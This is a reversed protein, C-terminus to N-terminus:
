LWLIELPEKQPLPDGRGRLKTVGMGGGITISQNYPYIYIAFVPFKVSQSTNLWNIRISTNYKKTIRFWLRDGHSGITILYSYSSSYEIM